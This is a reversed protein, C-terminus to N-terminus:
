KYIVENNVIERAQNTINNMAGVWAMMDDAKLQETVGQQQKLQTVLSDYMKQARVDVEHLYKNLECQTFLTFYRARRNEKLFKAHQQGWHGIEYKNADEPLILNPLLVDGVKSYTIRNKM